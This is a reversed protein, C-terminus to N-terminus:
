VCCLCINVIDADQDGMVLKGDWSKVGDPRRESSADSPSTSISVLDNTSNRDRVGMVVFVFLM